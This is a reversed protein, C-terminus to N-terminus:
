KNRKSQKSKSMTRTDQKNKNQQEKKRDKYDSWYEKAKGIDAQQKAKSGVCLLVVLETGDKSYYIRYGKEFDIRHEWVGGGVSKHDGFNGLRMRTIATTVKAAAKQGLKGFGTAFPSKGNKSLYERTKM